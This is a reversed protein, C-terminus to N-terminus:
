IVIIAIWMIQNRVMMLDKAEYTRRTGDKWMAEGCRWFM